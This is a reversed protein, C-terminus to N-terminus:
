GRREALFGFLFRVCLDALGECVGRLFDRLGGM